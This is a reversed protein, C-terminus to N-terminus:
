DAALPSLGDQLHLLQTQAGPAVTFKVQAFDPKSFRPRIDRSFGFPELPLGLWDYDMQGNGNIDQFAEIAYLGPPVDELTVVTEGARAPVDAAKVPNVDKPYGAADYLGLRLVGGRPSVHGVHIILTAGSEAHAPAAAGGFLAAAVFLGRWCRDYGM